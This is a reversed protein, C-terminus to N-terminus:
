SSKRMEKLLSVLRERKGYVEAFAFRIARDANAQGSAHFRDGLHTSFAGWLATVIQFQLEESNRIGLNAQQNLEVYAMDAEDILRDLTPIYTDIDILKDMEPSMVGRFKHAENALAYRLHEATNIISNQVWQAQKSVDLHEPGLRSHTPVKLVIPRFQRLIQNLKDVLPQTLEARLSDRIKELTAQSFELAECNEGTREGM